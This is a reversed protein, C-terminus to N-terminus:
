QSFQFRGGEGRGAMAARPEARGTVLAKLKLKNEPGEALVIAGRQADLVSVADNLVSNLLDDEKELHVLHHGARLLAVLQEGARPCRNGDFALGEMAEDWTARATGAVRMSEQTAALDAEPEGDNLAEVVVAVEGFQLLDRVRLPWQGNGLRGGNLR